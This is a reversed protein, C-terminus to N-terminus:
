EFDYAIKEILNVTTNLIKGNLRHTTRANLFPEFGNVVSESVISYDNHHSMANVYVSRSIKNLQSFFIIQHVHVDILLVAIVLNFSSGFKHSNHQVIDYKFKAIFVRFETQVNNLRIFM